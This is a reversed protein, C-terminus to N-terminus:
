KSNGHKKNFMWNTNGKMAKSIKRKRELEKIPDKCKGLTRGKLSNSIKEKTKKTMGLVWGNKLYTNLETKSIFKNENINNIWIYGLHIGKRSVNYKFTIQKRNPNKKCRLEHQRLSNLNKCERGCYQCYLIQPKNFNNM